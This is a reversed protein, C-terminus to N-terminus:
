LIQLIIQISLKVKHYVKKVLLTLKKRKQLYMERLKGVRNRIQDLTRDTKKIFEGKRTEMRVFKRGFSLYYKLKLKQGSPLTMIQNLKKKKLGAKAKLQHSFYHLFTFRLKYVM